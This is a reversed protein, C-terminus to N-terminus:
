LLTSRKKIIHIGVVINYFLGNSKIFDITIKNKQTYIHYVCVYLCVGDDDNTDEDDDDDYKKLVHM